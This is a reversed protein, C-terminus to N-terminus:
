VLGIRTLKRLICCTPSLCTCDVTTTADWVSMPGVERDEVERGRPIQYIQIPRPAQVAAWVLVGGRQFDACIKVFSATPSARPRSSSSSVIANDEMRGLVGSM